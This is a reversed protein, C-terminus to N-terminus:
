SATMEAPQLHGPSLHDTVENDSPQHCGSDRPCNMMDAKMNEGPTPSPSPTEAEENSEKELHCNSCLQRLSEVAALLHRRHEPDSVNMKTLHQERLRMLDDVTQYGNQQLSTSYEELSLRKLVERVTSTSRQRSVPNQAEKHTEPGAETLDVYIFKFNGIKNNLMGTWIGMPPKHIIDIMDGVKLQLSETDYPSPVFETHVRARGCFQRTSLVEDELRLSDRNSSCFSGSTVGSSSSQRSNLSYLSELSTSSLKHGKVVKKRVGFERKEEAETSKDDIDKQDVPMETPTPEAEPVDEKQGLKPPLGNPKLSSGTDYQLKMVPTLETPTGSTGSKTLKVETTQDTMESSSLHSEKRDLERILSEFRDWETARPPLLNGTCVWLDRGPQRCTHHFPAWPRSCDIPTWVNDKTVDEHQSKVEQQSQTQEDSPSSKRETRKGLGICTLVPQSTSLVDTLNRASQNKGKGPVNRHGNKAQLWTHLSKLRGATSPMQEEKDDGSKGSDTINTESCTWQPRRRLLPSGQHKPLVDKVSPSNPPEYISETSGDLTFCFFNM